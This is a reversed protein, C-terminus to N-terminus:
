KRQQKCIQYKAASTVLEPKTLPLGYQQACAYDRDRSSQEHAWQTIVPIVPCLPRHDISHTMRNVQNSSDEESSTVRQHANVLICTDECGDGMKPLDIYM